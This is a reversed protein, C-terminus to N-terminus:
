LRSILEKKQEEISLRSDIEFDPKIFSYDKEQSQIIKNILKKDINDRSQVRKIQENLDCTMKIKYDFHFNKILNKTLPTVLLYSDLDNVIAKINNIILPHLISEIDNKLISNNFLAEKLKKKDIQESTFFEKGLNQYLRKYGENGPMILKRNIDDLEFVPILYKLNSALSSKGSGISGFLLLKKNNM